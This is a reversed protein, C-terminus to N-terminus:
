STIKLFRLIKNSHKTQVNLQEYNTSYLIRITQLKCSSGGAPTLPAGVSFLMM